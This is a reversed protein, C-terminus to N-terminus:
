GDYDARLRAFLCPPLDSINATSPASNALASIVTSLNMAAPM